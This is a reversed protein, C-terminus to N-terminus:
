KSKPTSKAGLQMDRRPLGFLLRISIGTRDEKERDISREEGNCCDLTSQTKQM